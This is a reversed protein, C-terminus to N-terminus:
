ISLTRECVQRGHLTRKIRPEVEYGGMHEFRATLEGYRELAQEWDPADTDAIAPELAVIEEQLDALASLAAEMEEWLTRDGSFRVEQALYAVRIGRAMAVQGSDASEIGAIIKLLTSKGAGNVGVLALKDGRAVQFNIDQFILEAGYYKGLGGVSVLTM